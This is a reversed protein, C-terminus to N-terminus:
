LPSITQSVELGSPWGRLINSVDFASPSNPNLAFVENLSPKTFVILQYAWLLHILLLDFKEYNSLKEGFIPPLM